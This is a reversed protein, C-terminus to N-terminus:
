PTKSTFGMQAGDGVGQGASQTKNYIKHSIHDMNVFFLRSTFELSVYM